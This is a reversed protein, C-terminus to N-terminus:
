QTATKLRQKQTKRCGRQTTQDAAPYLPPNGYQRHQPYGTGGQGRYGPYGVGAGRQRTAAAPMQSSFNHDKQDGPPKTASQDDGQKDQQAKDGQPTPIIPSTPPGENANEDALSSATAQLFIVAAILMIRTNRM